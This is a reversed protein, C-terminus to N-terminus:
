RTLVVTTKKYKWPYLFYINAQFPNACKMETNHKMYFVTMQKAMDKNTVKCMM